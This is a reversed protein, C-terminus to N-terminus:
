TKASISFHQAVSSSQGESDEIRQGECSNKEPGRSFETKIAFSTFHFLIRVEIDGHKVVPLIFCTLKLERRFDAELVCIQRFHTILNASNKFAKGVM